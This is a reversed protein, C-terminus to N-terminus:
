SLLKWLTGDVLEREDFQSYALARLWPERDPYVPARDQSIDTLRGAGRRLGSSGGRPLGPDGGRGRRQIGHAV